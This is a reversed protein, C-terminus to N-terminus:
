ARGYRNRVANPSRGPLQQAILQWKRGHMNVGASIIDDEEASWMDGRKAVEIAELDESMVFVKGSSGAAGSLAGGAMERTIGHKIRELRLYRNRVADDTRGPLMAAIPSWKKGHALVMSVILEVEEHTWGQKGKGTPKPQSSGRGTGRGKANKMPATSNGEEQDDGSSDGDDDEATDSGPAVRRAPLASPATSVSPDLLPVWAAAAAAAPMAPPSSAAGLEGGTGWGKGRRRRKASDPTPPGTTM